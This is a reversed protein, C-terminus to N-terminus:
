RLRNYGNVLDNYSKLAAPYSSEITWGSASNLRGKEFETYPVKDRVRRIYKKAKLAYDGATNVFFANRSEKNSEKLQAVLTELESVKQMMAEADFNEEAIVRDIQKASIM